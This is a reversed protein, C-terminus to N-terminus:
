NFIFLIMVELETVKSKLPHPVLVLNSVAVVRVLVKRPVGLALAIPAPAVLFSACDEGCSGRLEQAGEAVWLCLTPGLVHM